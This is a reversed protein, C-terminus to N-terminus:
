KTSAAGAVARILGDSKSPAVWGPVLMDSLAMPKGYYERNLQESLRIKQSDLSFGTYFGKPLIFTLMEPATESASGGDASPIKSSMTGTGITIGPSQHPGMNASDQLLRQVGKDTMVLMVMQSVALGIQIGVSLTDVDYFLPGKWGDGGRVVLVARGGSFGGVVSLRVVRPFILVARARSLNEQLSASNPHDRLVNQLTVEATEVLNQPEDQAWVTAIPALSLSALLARAMARVM